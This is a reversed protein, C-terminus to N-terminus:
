SCGVWCIDGDRFPLSLILTFIYIIVSNRQAEDQHLVCPFTAIINKINKNRILLQCSAYQFCCCCEQSTKAHQITAGKSHSTPVIHFTLIWFAKHKGTSSKSTEHMDDRM